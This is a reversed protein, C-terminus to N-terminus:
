ARIRRGRVAWRVGTDCMAYAASLAMICVHMRLDARKAQTVDRHTCERIGARMRDRAAAPRLAITKYAPSPRVIGVQCHCTGNYRM